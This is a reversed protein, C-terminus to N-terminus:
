FTKKGVNLESETIIVGGGAGDKCSAPGPHSLSCPQVVAPSCWCGASSSAERAGVPCEWSVSTARRAEWKREPSGDRQSDGEREQSDNMKTVRKGNASRGDTRTHHLRHLPLPEQPADAHWHLGRVQLGRRAVEEVGPPRDQLALRGDSLGDLPSAPLRASSGHISM